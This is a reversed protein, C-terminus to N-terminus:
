GNVADKMKKAPSFKVVKKAPIDIVEGTRPNRGKTAKRSKVSLSGFGALQIGNDNKALEKIVISLYADLFEQAEKKTKATASAIESILQEKNM